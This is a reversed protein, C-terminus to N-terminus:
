GGRQEKKEIEQLTLDVEKDPDPETTEMAFGANIADIVATYLQNFAGPKMRRRIEEASVARFTEDFPRGADQAAAQETREAGETLIAAVACLTRARTKSKGSIEELLKGIMCVNEEISCFADMDLSFFLTLGKISFSAERM